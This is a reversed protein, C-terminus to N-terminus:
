LQAILSVIIVVWTGQKCVDMDRKNSTNTSCRKIGSTCKKPDTPLALAVGVLAAVTVAIFKM